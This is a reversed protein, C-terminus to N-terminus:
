LNIVPTEAGTPWQIDVAPQSIFVVLVASFAATAAFIETRTSTGQTLAILGVAFIIAFATICLLLNREGKVQTLVAIAVVPLLCAVVTSLSSTFRVATAESMSKVTDCVDQPEDFTCTGGQAETGFVEPNPVKETSADMAQAAM